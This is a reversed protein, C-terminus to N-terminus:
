KTVANWIDAASSSEFGDAQIAYAKITIYNTNDDTTAYDELYVAGAVAGEDTSAGGIATELVKFEGFVKFNLNTKDGGDVDIKRIAGGKALYWINSATDGVKVWGNEEMQAEIDQYGGEVTEAEAAGLNNIVEVFLYCDESAPDVHVTPDKVYTHGPILKYTNATVRNDGDKAGYLDVDTEDLTIQVDGVQFTNKVVETADQLYAVTVAVTTSVLLVAAIALTMIKKTRKM